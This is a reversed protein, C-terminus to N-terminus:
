IIRPSIGARTTSREVDGEEPVVEGREPHDAWDYDPGHHMAEERTIKLTVRNGDVAGIASNSIRHSHPFFFGKQVVFHDHEVCEVTGVLLDTRDIVEMGVIPRDLDDAM